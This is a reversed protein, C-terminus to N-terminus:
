KFKKQWLTFQYDIGQKESYMKEGKILCEFDEEYSPFYTDAEEIELDMQTIFLQDTYPLFSKYIMGGGIIIFNGGLKSFQVIPDISNFVTAGEVEFKPTQSIIINTRYPLLRGISKYTNEGMVVTKGKTVKSFFRLDEPVDWALANKNGIARNKDHAVILSIM